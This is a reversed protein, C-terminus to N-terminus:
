LEDRVEKLKKALAQRARTLAVGVHNETLGTIEGIERYSLGDLSLLIVTREDVALARIGDYLRALLEAKEHTWGPRPEESPAHEIRDFEMTAFALRSRRGRQWGMATNLCVRYIWTVPRCQERFGPLSRWLQVAMDQFLDAQDEATAAYARALRHFIGRHEHWWAKFRVERDRDTNM